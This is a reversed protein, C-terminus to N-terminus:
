CYFCHFLAHFINLALLLSVFVVGIAKNNAKFIIECKLKVATNRSNVKSIYNGDPFKFPKMIISHSIKLNINVLIVFLIHKLFLRPSSPLILLYDISSNSFKSM